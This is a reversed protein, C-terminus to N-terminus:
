QIVKTMKVHDIGAEQYKGGVCVFGLNTYFQHAHCQSSLWVKNLKMKKAQQLLAQMVINGVGKGRQNRLVAIRGIHGDELIRGTAVASGETFVLVHLATEDHEDHELEVPVSQEVVFVQTRISRIDEVYAPYDTIIIKCNDSM